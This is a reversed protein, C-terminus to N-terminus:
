ARVFAELLLGGQARHKKVAAGAPSSSSAAAQLPEAEAAQHAGQCHGASVAHGGKRQPGPVDSSPWCKHLTSNPWGQLIPGFVQNDQQSTTCNATLRDPIAYWQRSVHSYVHCIRPKDSWMIVHLINGYSNAAVLNGDASGIAMSFYALREGISTPRWMKLATQRSWGTLPPSISAGQLLTLPSWCWQMLRCLVYM